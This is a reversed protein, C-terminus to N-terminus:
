PQSRNRQNNVPNVVGKERWDFDELLDNSLLIPAMNADSPLWPETLGLIAEHVRSPDSRLVSHNRYVRHTRSIPPSWRRSIPNKKSGDDPFPTTHTPPKNQCTRHLPSALLAAEKTSLSLHLVRTAM